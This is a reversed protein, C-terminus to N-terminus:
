TTQSSGSRMKDLRRLWELMKNLHTEDGQNVLNIEAAFIEKAAEPQSHKNLLIRLEEINLRQEVMKESADAPSPMGAKTPHQTNDAVVKSTHNDTSNNLRRRYTLPDKPTSFNGNIREIVYEFPRVVGAGGSHLNNNHRNASSKRTLGQGSDDNRLTITETDSKYDFLLAMRGWGIIKDFNNTFDYSYNNDDADDGGSNSSCSYDYELLEQKTIYGTRSQKILEILKQFPKLKMLTQKLIIKQLRPSAELISYGKETISVDGSKVEILHLMQGTEHIPLIDALKLQEKSSIAAVDAKGGMHNLIDIFGYLRGFNVNPVDLM